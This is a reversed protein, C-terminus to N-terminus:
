GLISRAASKKKPVSFGLLDAENDSRTAGAATARQGLLQERSDFENARIEVEKTRPAAPQAEPVKDGGGLIKDIASTM